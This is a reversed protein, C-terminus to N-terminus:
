GRGRGTGGGGEVYAARKEQELARLREEADRHAAQVDHSSRSLAAELDRELQAVRTGLRSVEFNAVQLAPLPVRTLSFSHTHAVTHTECHTYWLTQTHAVTLTHTSM